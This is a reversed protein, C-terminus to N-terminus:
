RIGSTRKQTKKQPPPIVGQMNQKGPQKIISDSDYGCDALLYDATLKQSIYSIPNKFTILHM